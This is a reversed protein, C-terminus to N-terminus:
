MSRAETARQGQLAELAVEQGEDDTDINLEPAVNQEVVVDALATGEVDMDDVGDRELLM